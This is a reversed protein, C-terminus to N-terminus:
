KDVIQQFRQNNRVLEQFTVPVYGNICAAANLARERTKMFEYTDDKKGHIHGYIHYAGRHYQNWEIMPFHCMQILNGEDKIYQMKEIEEFYETAGPQKLWTGDHNGLILHLHGNLQRLYWEADNRSRYIFDGIIYVHDEKRVRHNWNEIMIRDMEEVDAFPRQDFEIANKHGFHVDSIYFNM